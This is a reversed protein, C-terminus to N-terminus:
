PTTFSTGAPVLAGNVMTLVQTATATASASGCCCGAGSKVSLRFELTRTQTVGPPNGLSPIDVITVSLGGGAPCPVVRNNWPAFTVSTPFLAFMDTWTNPSHGPIAPLNTKENWELVCDSKGATGATYTMDIVLDFSHGNAVTTGGRVIPPTTFSQVNQITVSNTCCCCKTPTAGGCPAKSGTAAPAAPTTSPTPPPNKPKTM